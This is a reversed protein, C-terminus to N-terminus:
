QHNKELYKQHYEEAQYFEEAPIIETVVPMEYNKQVEERIRIGAAKQNDEHFFIVSKYQTKTPFTPNHQSWFHYLLDEYSVEIPDFKIEVVETHDDLDHYTPNVKTGGSYGVRVSIVGPLKSFYKDPGWFCGMGFTAMNNRM